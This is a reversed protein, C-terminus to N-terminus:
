NSTTSESVVRSKIQNSKIPYEIYMVSICLLFVLISNCSFFYQVSYKSFFLVYNFFLLLVLSLGFLKSLFSLEM